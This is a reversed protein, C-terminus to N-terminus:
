RSETTVTLAMRACLASVRADDVPHHKRHSALAEPSLVRDAYSALPDHGASLLLTAVEHLPYPGGFARSPDDAVCASLLGAEVPWGCDVLVWVGDGQGMQWRLWAWFAERMTRVTPHTLEPGLRPIVHEAVWPDAGVPDPARAYFTSEERGTAADLVVGGVAFVEGHLGNSEGDFCVIRRIM